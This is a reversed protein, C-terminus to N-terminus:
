SVLRDSVAISTDARSVDWPGTTRPGLSDVWASLPTVDCSRGAKQPELSMFGNNAFSKTLPADPNLTASSLMHGTSSANLKATPLARPTVSQPIGGDFFRTTM